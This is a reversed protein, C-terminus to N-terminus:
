SSSLLIAPDAQNQSLVGYLGPVPRQLLAHGHRQRHVSAWSGVADMTVHNSAHPSRLCVRPHGMAALATHSQRPEDTLRGFLEGLRVVEVYFFEDRLGLPQASPSLRRVARRRPPSSPATEVGEPPAGERLGMVDKRRTPQKTRV